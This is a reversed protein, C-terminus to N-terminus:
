VLVGEQGDDRSRSDGRLAITIIRLLNTAPCSCAPVRRQIILWGHISPRPTRSSTLKAGGEDAHTVTLGDRKAGRPICGSGQNLLGSLERSFASLKADLVGRTNVEKRSGRYVNTFPLVYWRQFFADTSDKSIPPTNTSFM